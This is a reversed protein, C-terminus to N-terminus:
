SLTKLIKLGYKELPKFDKLNETWLPIGLVIATAGILIDRPEMIKGVRMLEAEIEAAKETIEYTIPVIMFNEELIRKLRMKGTRYVGVLFEFAVVTSIYFDFKLLLEELRSLPEKELLRILINTDIMIKGM